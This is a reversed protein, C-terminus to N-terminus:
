ELPGGSLGPARLSTRCQSMNSLNMDERYKVFFIDKRLERFILTGLPSSSSQKVKLNMQLQNYLIVFLRKKIKYFPIM